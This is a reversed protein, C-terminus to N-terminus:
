NFKYVRRCAKYGMLFANRTAKGTPTPRTVVPRLSRFCTRKYINPHELEIHEWFEQMQKLSEDTNSLMFLIFQTLLMMNLYHSLYIYLRRNEMRIKKLDHMDLLENVVQLHQDLRGVLVKTNVSQDQRGIFYRYLDINLYRIRHVYPLPKVVFINDVYFIREPLELGVDRLLQTRYIASHMTIYHSPKLRRTDDWDFVCNAPFAYSYSVIRQTNDLQHEYVYNCVFLDVAERARVSKYLSRMLSDLAPGNLWDDSDVVMFYEGTALSMGTNVASGHGGNQKHVVSVLDPYKAAYRDAISATEDFSGDDVIIIEAMDGAPLISRICKDM